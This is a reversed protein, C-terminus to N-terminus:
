DQFTMRHYVRRVSEVDGKCYEAIEGVRGEKVYDWVMSGDIGDTKGEVSLAKCLKDLSIRGGWGAWETMTDFLYPNKKGTQLNFPPRVGLIVSRQFLFRLDFDKVNHGIFMPIEKGSAKKLEHYFNELLAAESDGQYRFVCKAPNDKAAWGIAVIEGLTGDLATKRWLEEAKEEANEKMWAAISEPKKINGPPSINEMIGAYVEPKQSPITEIDLFLEMM